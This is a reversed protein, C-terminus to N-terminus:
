LRVGSDIRAFKNSFMKILKKLFSPRDEARRNKINWFIRSHNKVECDVMQGMRLFLDKLSTDGFCGAEHLAYLLEVFEVQTGAWKLTEGSSTKSNSPCHTTNQSALIQKEM